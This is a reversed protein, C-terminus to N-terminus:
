LSISTEVQSFVINTVTHAIDAFEDIFAEIEILESVHLKLMYCARGTIRECSSVDKRKVIRNQFREYQGDRVTVEIICCIPLGANAYDIRVGYGKIIGFSEMQKIRESVAPASMGIRGGLKRMSLRSDKQLENLIQKDIDDIKM